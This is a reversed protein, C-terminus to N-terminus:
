EEEKKYGKPGRFCIISMVFCDIEWILFALLLSSFSHFQITPIFLIFVVANLLFDKIIKKYDLKFNMM